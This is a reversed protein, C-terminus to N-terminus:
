TIPAAPTPQGPLPGEVYRRRKGFRSAWKIEVTQAEVSRDAGHDSIWGLLGDLVYGMDQAELASRTVFQDGLVPHTAAFLPSWGHLPERRLRGIPRAEGCGVPSSPGLPVHRLRNASARLAWMRPGGAWGVPAASWRLAAGIPLMARRPPRLLATALRGDPLLGLNVLEEGGTGCPAVCGLVVAGERREGGAAYRHRWGREDAWRRLPMLLRNVPLGPAERPNLPYSEIFGLHGVPESVEYLPDAAGAVLTLGGSWPDRRLELADLMPLPATEIYGLARLGDIPQGEFPTCFFGDGTAILRQTGPQAFCHVLGLDYEIEYGAPPIRDNTVIRRMGDSSRHRVLLITGPPTWTPGASWRPVRVRLPRSLMPTEWMLSRQVKREAASEAARWGLGLRV